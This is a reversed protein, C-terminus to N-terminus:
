VIFHDRQHLGVVVEFVEAVLVRRRIAGASQWPSRLVSMATKPGDVSVDYMRYAAAGVLPASAHLLPV